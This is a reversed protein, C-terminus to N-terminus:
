NMKRQPIETMQEMITNFSTAVINVLRSKGVNHSFQSLKKRDNLNPKQGFIFLGLTFGFWSV